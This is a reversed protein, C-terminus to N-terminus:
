ADIEEEKRIESEANAEQQRAEWYYLFLLCNFFVAFVSSLCDCADAVLSHNQLGALDVLKALSLSFTVMLAISVVWARFIQLAKGWTLQTSRQRSKWAGAGELVVVEDILMFRTALILGPIILAILGLFVFLGAVLRAGFLRGWHHLGARMAELYSTKEGSMRAALATIIGAAYIPGFVLEILQGLQLVVLTDAQNPNGAVAMDILLHGPVWITLVLAAFLPLQGFLLRFAMVMKGGFSAPIPLRSRGDDLSSRPPAYPNELDLDSGHPLDRDLTLKGGCYPCVGSGASLQGGTLLARCSPCEKYSSM